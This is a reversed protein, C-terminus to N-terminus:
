ASSGTPKLVSFRCLDEAQDFTIRRTRLLRMARSWAELYKAYEEALQKQHRRVAEDFEKGMM